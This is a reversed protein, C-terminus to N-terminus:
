PTLEEVAPQEVASQGPRLRILLVMWAPDGQGLAVVVNAGARSDEGALAAALNAARDLTLPSPPDGQVLIELEYGWGAPRLELARMVEGILGRRSDLVAASETAFFLETPLQIIQELASLQRANRDLPVLGQFPVLLNKLVDRAEPELAGGQAGSQALEQLGAFRQQVSETVARSREADLTAKSTLIIFFALVLLMISLFPVLSPDRRAPAPAPLIVVSRAGRSSVEGAPPSAAM